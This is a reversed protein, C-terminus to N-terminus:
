RDKTTEGGSATSKRIVMEQDSGPRRIIVEQDGVLPVTVENDGFRPTSSGEAGATRAGPSADRNLRNDDYVENAYYDGSDGAAGAGYYDRLSTEYDRTIPGRSYAPAGALGRAPLRELTVDNGKDDLRVAGIPVLVHRDDDIGLAKRDVKVEVYRVRKAVPDVILEDVKGVKKGDGTKVSWGRIDRSGEAVEFGKSEELRVLQGERDNTSNRERDM